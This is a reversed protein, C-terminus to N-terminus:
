EVKVEHPALLFVPALTNLPSTPVLLPSVIPYLGAETVPVICGMGSAEVAAALDSKAVTYEYKLPNAGPM